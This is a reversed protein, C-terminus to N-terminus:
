DLTSEGMNGAVKRCFKRYEEKKMRHTHHIVSIAKCANFWGQIGPIHKVQDHLITKTIYQQISIVLIENLIKEDINM